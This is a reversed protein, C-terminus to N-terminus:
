RRVALRSRTSCSLLACAIIPLFPVYRRRVVFSRKRTHVSQACSNMVFRESRPPTTRRPSNESRRLPSQSTTRIRGRRASDSDGNLPQVRILVSSRIIPHINEEDEGNARTRAYLEFVPTLM